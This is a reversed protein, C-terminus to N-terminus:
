LDPVLVPVLVPELDPKLHQRLELAPELKLELEATWFRARCRGLLITVGVCTCVM